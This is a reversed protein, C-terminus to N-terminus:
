SGIVRGVANLPNALPVYPSREGTAGCSSRVLRLDTFDTEVTHILERHAM